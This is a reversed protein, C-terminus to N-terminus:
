TGSAEALDDDEERVRGWFGIEGRPKEEEEETEYVGDDDSENEMTETVTVKLALDREIDTVKYSSSGDAEVVWGSRKWVGNRSDFGREIPLLWVFKDDRIRYVQAQLWSRGRKMAKEKTSFTGLVGNNQAMTGLPGVEMFTGDLLQIKNTTDPHEWHQADFCLVFSRHGTKKSVTKRRILGSRILEEDHSNHESSDRLNEPTGAQSPGISPQSSSSM